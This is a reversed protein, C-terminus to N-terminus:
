RLIWYSVDIKIMHIICLSFSYQKTWSCSNLTKHNVHFIMNISLSKCARCHPISHISLIPIKQYNRSRDSNMSSLQIKKQITAQGRMISVSKSILNIDRISEKFFRTERNKINPGFVTCYVYQNINKTYLFHIPIYIFAYRLNSIQIVNHKSM